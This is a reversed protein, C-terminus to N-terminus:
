WGLEVPEGGSATLMSLLKQKEISITIFFIKGDAMAVHTGGVHHSTKSEWDFTLFERFSLDNPEIWSISKGPPGEVILITNDLGDTIQEPKTQSPGAMIGSDFIVAFYNTHVGTGPELTCQYADVVTERAKRNVESDWPQSLDIKDYLAKEGLYPLILTRWSHLPRGSEDQTFAPPFSGHEDKYSQIAKAIALIKKSCAIRAEAQALAIAAGSFNYSWVLFLSGIVFFALIAVLVKTNTSDPPPQSNVDSQPAEKDM